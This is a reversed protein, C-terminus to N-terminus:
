PSTAKRILRVQDDPTAFIRARIKTEMRAYDQQKTFEICNSKMLEEVLKKILQEKLISDDIQIADNANITMQAVIMKGQATEVPASVIPSHVNVAGLTRISTTSPSTPTYSDIRVDMDHLTSM